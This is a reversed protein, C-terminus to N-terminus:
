AHRHIDISSVKLALDEKLGELERLESEMQAITMDQVSNDEVLPVNSAKMKGKPDKKADERVGAGIHRTLGDRLEALRTEVSELAMEVHTIADSLRGSTLDLVM